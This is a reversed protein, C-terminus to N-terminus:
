ATDEEEEEYEDASEYNSGFVFDRMRALSSRNDEIGGEGDDDFEKEAKIKKKKSSIYQQYALGPIPTSVYVRPARNGLTLSTGPILKRLTLSPGGFSMNLAINKNVPFRRYFRVGAAKEDDSTNDVFEVSNRGLQKYTDTSIKESKAHAAHNESGVERLINRFKDNLKEKERSLRDLIEDGTRERRYGVLKGLWSPDESKTIFRQVHVNKLEEPLDEHSDFRLGRGRAQQSRSEHWHPDLIQILNTGKTSLGEAGAPGLLLARLKGANYDRLAQQRLKTPVGGHFMGYPINEQALAAAYPEIGAGIHNSYIIAKKRPDDAMVEKFKKMALTLKGSQEFAKLPDSDHRFPATSISNQRLGTFFSNLKALEDKSLPFEQDLKWLFSPPIKTRLAKQMKLQAPSMPAYVREENVNVGEPDKSPQYDVHGRLTRKLEDANQVVPRVGPKIGAAWNLIGPYVTEEGIYRKEFEKPSIQQRKLLSMLNALDTPSNTIPSGTLLLLRKADYAVDRAAIAAAGGPNRLRHAEDMIVTDPQEKFKKGLGLGTYSIVEPTSDETFKEVEKEFNGRLSAPAVIGYSDGSTAKAAEAAAIASLSKGTGLGHYLLM